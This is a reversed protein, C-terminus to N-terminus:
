PQRTTSNGTSDSSGASTGSNMSSPNPPNGPNMSSGPNGASPNGASIGPNSPVDSGSPGPVSSGVSGSSGASGSGMSGSGAGGGAAGSGGSAGAGAGGAGGGGGGGAGQAFANASFTAMALSITAGLLITPLKKKMAVAGQPEDLKSSNPRNEVIVRQLSAALNTESRYLKARSCETFDTFRAHTPEAFNSDSQCTSQTVILSEAILWRHKEHLSWMFQLCVQAFVPCDFSNMWFRFRDSRDLGVCTASTLPLARLRTQVLTKLALLPTLYTKQTSELNGVHLHRQWV